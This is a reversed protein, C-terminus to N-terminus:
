CAIKGLWLVDRYIRQIKTCSMDMDLNAFIRDAIIKNLHLTKVDSMSFSGNGQKNIPLYYAAKAISVTTLSANFHFHLKKEDRAQCQTLGTFQKADRFLFEIQYRSKYYLFIRQGDLETDTSFLVAYRGTYKGNEWFEVYAMRIKRKLRKSYVIGDYVKVRDYEYCLKIRRKDIKTMNMKGDLIKPRGRGRTPKGSYVYYLDADSRLKCVLHLGTNNMVKDVFTRKAFYGDVAVYPSFTLLVEKREIVLSAYHDTLSLGQYKLEQVSPTQIAELSLATNNDIDVVAFGGIELGKLAKGSCGSWFWGMHETQKGSKSIYSPDFANILHSSCKQKILEKNLTKFDFSKQFQNRYTQESYEGYRAMNLFNYRGRLGMYLMFITIMFDRRAKNLGSMKEIIAAILAESKESADTQKQM